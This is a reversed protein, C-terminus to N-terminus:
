GKLAALVAETSRVRGLRPFTLGIAAAHAGEGLGSMADEVFIQEFGREYADRATSEVGINTAIGALIITEIGRRRLQLELDTGYFAGWNRKFVRVDEAEVDLESVLQSWEPPFSPPLRPAADTQQSLALKGAPAMVTVWIVTGGAARLATAISSARGVVDKGSHPSTPLNAVGNQLDIVVLATSTPDLSLDSL